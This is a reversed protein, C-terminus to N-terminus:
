APHSPLLASRSSHLSRRPRVLVPLSPTLSRLPETAPPQLPTSRHPLVLLSPPFQAAPAAPAALAAPTYRFPHLPGSRLPPLTSHSLSVSILLSRRPPRHLAPAAYRSHDPATRTGHPLPPEPYRHIHLTAVAASHTPPQTLPRPSPLPAYVPLSPRSPRPLASPPTLPRGDSRTAPTRLYVPM